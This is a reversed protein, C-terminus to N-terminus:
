SAVGVRAMAKAIEAQAVRDDDDITRAQLESLRAQAAAQDIESALEGSNALVDARTVGDETSVHLFGGDVIATTWAGDTGLLRLPAITLRVLIPAHGGLIGVDGDVGHAILEQVEGSFLEREPTVIHVELSM